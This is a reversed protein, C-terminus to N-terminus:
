RRSLPRKCPNPHRSSASRDGQNRPQRRCEQIMIKAGFWAHIFFLVRVLCRYCHVNESTPSTSNLFFKGLRDRRSLPPVHAQHVPRKNRPIRPHSVGCISILFRDFPDAKDRAPTGFVSSGSQGTPQHLIERDPWRRRHGRTYLHGELQIQSDLGRGRGLDVM